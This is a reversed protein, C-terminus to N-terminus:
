RLLLYLALWIPTALAGAILLGRVAGVHHDSIRDAPRAFGSLSPKRSPSPFQQAGMAPIVERKLM